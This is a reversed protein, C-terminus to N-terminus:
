QYVSIECPTQGGDKRGLALRQQRQQEPVQFM